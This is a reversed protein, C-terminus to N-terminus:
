NSKKTEAKKIMTNIDSNSIKKPKKRLLRKAEDTSRYPKVGRFLLGADTLRKKSFNVQSYFKNVDSQVKESLDEETLDFERELKIVADKISSISNYHILKLLPLHIDDYKPLPM